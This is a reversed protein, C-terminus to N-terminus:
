VTIGRKREGLLFYGAGPVLWGALAIIPPPLIDDFDAMRPSYQLRRSSRPLVPIPVYERRAINRWGDGAQMLRTKRPLRSQLRGLDGEESPTAGIADNYTSVRGTFLGTM